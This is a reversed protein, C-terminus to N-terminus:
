GPNTGATSAPWGPKSWMVYRQQVNKELEVAIYVGTGPIRGGLDWKQGRYKGPVDYETDWGVPPWRKKLEALLKGTLEDWLEEVLDASATNIIKQKGKRSHVSKEYIYSLIKATLDDADTDAFEPYLTRLTDIVSRVDKDAPLNKQDELWAWVMLEIPHQEDSM